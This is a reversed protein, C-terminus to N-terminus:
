PRQPTHCPNCGCGGASSSCASYLQGIQRASSCLGTTSVQACRKQQPQRRECQAVVRREWPPGVHRQRLAGAAVEAGHGGWCFKGKSAAVCFGGQVVDQLCGAM